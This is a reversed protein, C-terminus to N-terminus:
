ARGTTNRATGGRAPAGNWIRYAALLGAPVLGLIDTVLGGSILLVSSAFLLLRLVTNVPGFYWAQLAAALLYVGACATLGYHIIQSLDGQMLLAPSYFFM